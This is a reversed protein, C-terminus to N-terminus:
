IPKKGASIVFQESTLSPRNELGITIGSDRFTKTLIEVLPSISTKEKVLMTLSIVVNRDTRPQIWSGIGAPNIAAHSAGEQILAWIESIYQQSEPDGPEHEMM